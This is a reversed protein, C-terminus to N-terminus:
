CISLETMTTWLSKDDILYNYIPSIESYDPNWNVSNTTLINIPFEAVWINIEVEICNQDEVISQSINISDVQVSSQFSLENIKADLKVPYHKDNQREHVWNFSLYVPVQSNKSKEKIELLYVVLKTLYSGKSGFIFSRINNEIGPYDSREAVVSEIFKEFSGFNFSLKLESDKNVSLLTAYLRLYDLKHLTATFLQSSKFISIEEPYSASLSQIILDELKVLEYTKISTLSYFVFTKINPNAKWFKEIEASSLSSISKLYANLSLHFLREYTLYIDQNSANLNISLALSCLLGAIRLSQKIDKEDLLSKIQLYYHFNAFMNKLKENGSDSQIIEGILLYYYSPFFVKAQLTNFKTKFIDIAQSLCEGSSSDVYAADKESYKILFTYNIVLKDNSKFVESYQRIIEKFANLIEKVNNEMVMVSILDQNEIYNFNIQVKDCNSKMIKKLEQMSEIFQTNSYKPISHPFTEEEGKRQLLKCNLAASMNFLYDENEAFNREVYHTFMKTEFSKSISILQKLCLTVEFLCKVLKLKTEKNQIEVINKLCKNILIKYASLSSKEKYITEFIKIIGGSKICKTMLEIYYEDHLNGDKASIIPSSLFCNAISHMTDIENEIFYERNRFNDKESEICFYENSFLEELLRGQILSIILKLTYLNKNVRTRGLMEDEENISSPYVQKFYSIINSSPTKLDSNKIFAIGIESKDSKYYKQKKVKYEAKIFELINENACSEVALVFLSDNELVVQYLSPIIDSQIPMVDIVNIGNLTMYKHLAVQLCKDKTTFAIVLLKSLNAKLQNEFKSLSTKTPPSRYMGDIRINKEFSEILTNLEESVISAGILSNILYVIVISNAIKKELYVKVIDTTLEFGFYEMWVTVLFVANLQSFSFLLNAQNINIEKINCIILLQITRINKCMIINDLSDESISAKQEFKTNTMVKINLNGILCQSGEIRQIVSSNLLAFAKQKCTVGCEALLYETFGSHTGLLNFIEKSDYSDFYVLFAPISGHLIAYEIPSFNLYKENIIFKSYAFIRSVLNNSDKIEALLHLVTKGSLIKVSCLGAQQQLSLTEFLKSALPINKVELSFMFLLEISWSSFLHAFSDITQIDSPKYNRAIFMYILDNTKTNMFLSKLYEINKSLLTCELLNYKSSHLSEMVSPLQKFPINENMCSLISNANFIIALLYLNLNSYKMLQNSFLTNRSSKLKYISTKSFDIIRLIDVKNNNKMCQEELWSFMSADDTTISQALLTYSIDTSSLLFGM